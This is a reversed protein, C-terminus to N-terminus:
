ASKLPSCSPQLVKEISPGVIPKSLVQEVVLRHEDAVDGPVGAHLACHGLM